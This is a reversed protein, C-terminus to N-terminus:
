RPRRLLRPLLDHLLLRALLLLCRGASTRPVLGFGDSTEACSRPFEPEGDDEIPGDPGHTVWTNWALAHEAAGLRVFERCKLGCGVLLLCLAVGLSTFERHLNFGRSSNWCPATWSPRSYPHCTSVRGPRTLLHVSFKAEAALISRVTFASGISEVIRCHAALTPAATRTSRGCDSCRSRKSPASYRGSCARAIPREASRIRTSAM